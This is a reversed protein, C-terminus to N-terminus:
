LTQKFHFLIPRAKVNRIPNEFLMPNKFVLKYKGEESWISEYNLTCDVVEAQGIISYEDFNFEEIHNAATFQEDTPILKHDYRGAHIFITGRKRTVYSINACDVVGLCILEALPQKISITLM